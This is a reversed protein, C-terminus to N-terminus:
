VGEGVEKGEEAKKEKVSNGKRIEKGKRKKYDRVTTAEVPMIKSFIFPIKKDM